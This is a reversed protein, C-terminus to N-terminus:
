RVEPMEMGAAYGRRTMFGKIPSLTAQVQKATPDPLRPYVGMGAWLHSHILDMLKSAPRSAAAWYTWGDSNANVEDRYGALFRAAPGLVPHDAFRSVAEDIEYQNMWM